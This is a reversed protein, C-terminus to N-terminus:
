FGPVLTSLRPLCRPPIDMYQGLLVSYTPDFSLKHKISTLRENLRSTQSPLNRLWAINQITQRVDRERGDLEFYKYLAEFERPKPIRRPWATEVVARRQLPETRVCETFIGKLDDLLQTTDEPSRPIVIAVGAERPNFVFSLLNDLGHERTLKREEPLPGM